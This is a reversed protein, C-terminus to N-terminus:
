PSAAKWGGGLARYLTVRANLLDTRLQVLSLEAALLARQAVLQDLYSSYGARYRSEAHHLAAALFDRQAQAETMQKDLQDVAVLASEVESFATLVSKRYAQVAQERQAGAADAQSQILDHDFLPALVSGGLSWITLPTNPLSQSFVEGLSASLRLSPLLRDRAAAFSADAAVVQQEAQALDPRRRVLESPLGAPVLPLQLEALKQGRPVEGPVEGLLVRLANEQQQRAQTLQPLLQTAARYEAESQTLELGSIYGSRAQSRAIRLAGERARLTAEAVDLRGDIGRLGIYTTAVAAAVSLAVTDRAAETSLLAARAATDLKDLRGWLDVEYSAQLLPQLVTSETANGFANVSRARQANGQVTVQPWLGAEASRLQASAQAVRAVAAALDTNQREATAILQVLVPDGFGAWWDLGAQTEPVLSATDSRWAAPTPQAPVPQLPAGACASLLAVAAAIFSRTRM